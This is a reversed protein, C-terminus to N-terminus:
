QKVRKRCKGPLIAGAALAAFEGVFLLNDSKYGTNPIDATIIRTNDVFVAFTGLENTEFVICGDEIVANLKKCTGDEAIYCVTIGQMNQLKESLPISVKVADKFVIPNGNADQLAIDYVILDSYSFSSLATNASEVSAADDVKTIVNTDSPLVGGSVRIGNTKDSFTPNVQITVIKEPTYINRNQLWWGNENINQYSIKLTVTGPKIFTLKESSQLTTSYDQESQQVCDQGEVIEVKAQYVLLDDLLHEEKTFCADINEPTLATNVLETTFQLTDDVSVADPANTVIEPAEVVFEATQNYYVPSEFCSAGTVCISATFHGPYIAVGHRQRHKKGGFLAFTGASDRFFIRDDGIWTTREAFLSEVVSNDDEEVYMRIDTGYALNQVAVRNEEAYEGIKISTIPVVSASKPRESVHIDLIETKFQNTEEDAYSLKIKADGAKVAGFGMYVTEQMHEVYCSDISVVESGELVDMSTVHTRQFEDVAVYDGVWLDSFTERDPLLALGFSDGANDEAFVQISFLCLSFLLACSLLASILKKM